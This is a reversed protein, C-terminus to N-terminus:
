RAARRIEALENTAGDLAQTLRAIENRQKAVKSQLDRNTENVKALMRSQKSKDTAMRLVEERYGREDSEAANHLAVLNAVADGLRTWNDAM